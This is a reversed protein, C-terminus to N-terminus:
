RRVHYVQWVQTPRSDVHNEAKFLSIHLNRWFSTRAAPSEGEAAPGEPVEGSRGSAIKCINERWFIATVWEVKKEM